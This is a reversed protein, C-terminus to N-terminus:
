DVGVAMSHIKNIVLYFIHHLKNCCRILDRNNHPTTVIVRVRNDFPNGFAQVLSAFYWKCLKITDVQIRLSVETGNFSPMAAIGKPVRFLISKEAFITDHPNM